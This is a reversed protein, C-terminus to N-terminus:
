PRWRPQAACDRMAREFAEFYVRSMYRNLDEQMRLIDTGTLMRAPAVEIGNFRPAGGGFLAVPASVIPVVPMLVGSRIVAPAALFTKLLNRRNMTM